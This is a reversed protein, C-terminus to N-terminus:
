GILKIHIQDFFSMNEDRTFIGLHFSNVSDHQQIYEVISEISHEKYHSNLYMTVRTDTLWSLYKSTADSVKLPRMYFRDTDIRVNLM